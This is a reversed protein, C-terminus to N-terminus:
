ARSREPEAAARAPDALFAAVEREGREDPFRCEVGV